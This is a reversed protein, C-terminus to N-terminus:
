VRGQVPQGPERSTGDSEYMCFIKSRLHTKRWGDFQQSLRQLRELHTPTVEDGFMHTVQVGFNSLAAVTDGAQPSALFSFKQIHQAFDKARDTAILYSM